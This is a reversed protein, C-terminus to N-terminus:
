KGDPNGAHEQIASVDDHQQHADFEHQERHIKIEDRKRPKAPIDAALNENEENQRNRGGLRRDAQGYQYHQEAFAAADVDFVDIRELALIFMGEMYRVMTSAGSSAQMMAPRNPLVMPLTPACLMVMRPTAM